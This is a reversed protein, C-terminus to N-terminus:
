GDEEHIPSDFLEERSNTLSVSGLDTQVEIPYLVLKQHDRQARYLIVPFKKRVKKPYHVSDCAGDEDVCRIAPDTITV